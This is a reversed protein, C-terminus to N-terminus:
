TELFKFGDINYLFMKKKLIYEKTRFGKVDEAIWIGENNNLYTFDAVYNIPKITVGNRRFGPQLEFKVQRKLDSIAGSKELILLEKYRLMEKKSDFVIGNYTRDKKEARKFKNYM